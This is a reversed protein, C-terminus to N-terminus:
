RGIYQIDFNQNETEIKWQLNKTVRNINVRDKNVNFHYSHFWHHTTFSHNKPENKHNDKKFKECLAWQKKTKLRRMCNKEVLKTRTSDFTPLFWDFDPCILDTEKRKSRTKESVSRRYFGYAFSMMWPGTCGITDNLPCPRNRVLPSHQITRALTYYMFPHHSRCAMFANCTFTWNNAWSNMFNSMVFVQLDPERSLICSGWERLEELPKLDEMDLDAYVGGFAYLAVYRFMDAKQVPVTWSDYVPLLAPFHEQIFLRASEDTWFMYTWDPNLKLWKEIWPATRGPIEESIWTQHIIKEFKWPHRESVTNNLKLRFLPHKLFNQSDELRELLSIDAPHSIASAKVDPYGQYMRWITLSINDRLDGIDFQAFDTRPVLYYNSAIYSLQNNKKIITILCAFLVIVVGYKLLTPGARSFFRLFMSGPKRSSRLRM